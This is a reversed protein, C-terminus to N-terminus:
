APFEQHLGRLQTGQGSVVYRNRGVEGEEAEFGRGLSEVGPPYLRERERVCLVEVEPMSSSDPAVQWGTTAKSAPSRGRARANGAAHFGRMTAAVSGARVVSPEPFVIPLGPSGPMFFSKSSRTTARFERFERGSSGQSRRGVPGPKAHSHIGVCGISVLGSPM